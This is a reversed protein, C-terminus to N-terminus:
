DPRRVARHPPPPHKESGSGGSTGVVLPAGAKLALPLVLWKKKTKM